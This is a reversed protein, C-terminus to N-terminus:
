RFLVAFLLVAAGAGAYGVYKEQKVVWASFTKAEEIIVPNLKAAFKELLKELIFPLAMVVIMVNAILRVLMDVAGSIMILSLIAVVLGYIAGYLAVKDINESIKAVVTTVFEPKKELSKSVYLLTLAVLIALTILGM